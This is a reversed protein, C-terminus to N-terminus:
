QYILTSATYAQPEDPVVSYKVNNYTRGEIMDGTISAGTALDNGDIAIASGEAPVIKGEAIPSMLRIQFSYRSDGDQTYDWGTAATIATNFYTKTANITVTEGYGNQTAGNADIGPHSADFNLVMHGLTANTAHGFHGASTTNRLDFLWAGDHGTEGVNGSAFDIDALPVYESFYRDLYVQTSTNTFNIGDATVGSIQYFYASTDM